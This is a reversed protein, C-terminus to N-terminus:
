RTQEAHGAATVIKELSNNDQSSLEVLGLIQNDRNPNNGDDQEHHTIAKKGPFGTARPTTASAIIMAVANPKWAKPTGV